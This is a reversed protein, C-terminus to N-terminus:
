LLGRSLVELAKGNREHCFRLRQHLGRPREVPTKGERKLGAEGLQFAARWGCQVDYIAM